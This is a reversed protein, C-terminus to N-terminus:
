MDTGCRCCCGGCPKLLGVPQLVSEVYGCVCLGDVCFSGWEWYFGHLGSSVLLLVVPPEQALNM